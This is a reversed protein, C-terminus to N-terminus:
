RNSMFNEFGEKCARVFDVYLNNENLTQKKQECLAMEYYHVKIVM